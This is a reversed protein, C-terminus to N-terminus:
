HQVPKDAVTAPGGGHDDGRVVGSQDIFFSRKGTKGYENPVAVVEFGSGSTTVSFAYGYKDLMNPTILKSSVLSELSGYGGKDVRYQAESSAIMQLASMAIIENMEPSGQQMSKMAASTSALQRTTNM